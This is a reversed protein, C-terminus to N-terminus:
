VDRSVNSTEKITAQPSHNQNEAYPTNLLATFNQQVVDLTKQKKQLEQKERM